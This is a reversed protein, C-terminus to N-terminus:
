KLPRWLFKNVPICYAMKHGFGVWSVVECENMIAQLAEPKLITFTPIDEKSGNVMLISAGRKHYQKVQNRKLHFSCTLMPKAFKVEIEGYGEVDFDPDTNVENDELFDGGKGCGTDKFKPRTGTDKKILDLWMLFLAREEMTHNKIDKEFEEKSREDFRYNKGM